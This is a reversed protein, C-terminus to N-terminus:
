TRRMPMRGIEFDNWTSFSAWAHARCVRLCLSITAGQGVQGLKLPERQAFQNSAVSVGDADSFAAARNFADDEASKEQM